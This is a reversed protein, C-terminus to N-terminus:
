EAREFVIISDVMQHTPAYGNSSPRHQWIALARTVDYHSPHPNHNTMCACDHVALRGGIAMHPTWLELDALAGGYSHDGDIFLLDIEVKCDHADAIEHWRKGLGQSNGEVMVPRAAPNYAILNHRWEKLPAIEVSLITVGVPAAQDFISASMGYEAGIEVIVGNEPVAAALESLLNQEDPSEWGPVGTLHSLPADGIM